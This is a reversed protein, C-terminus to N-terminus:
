NINNNSNVNLNNNELNYFNRNINNNKMFEELDNRRKDKRQEKDLNIVQMNNKMFVSNNLSYVRSNTNTNINSQFNDLETLFAKPVSVNVGGLAKESKFKNISKCIAEM